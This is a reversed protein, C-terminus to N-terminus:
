RPMAVKVNTNETIHHFQQIVYELTTTESKNSREEAGHDLSNSVLRELNAFSSRNRPLFIILSSVFELIPIELILCGLKESEAVVLPQANSVMMPIEM